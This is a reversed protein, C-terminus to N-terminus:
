LCTIFGEGVLISNDEGDTEIHVCGQPTIPTIAVVYRREQHIKNSKPQQYNALKLNTKIRVTYNNLIENHVLGTRCGLSEALAQVQIVDTKRPSTFQFRDSKQNYLRSKSHLIGSLLEQRQEVSGLLYNNPIKTPILPALQSLITPTISFEREGNGARGHEKIKYGADQFKEHIFEACGPTPVMVHNKRRNFFWFGFVFPPISLDQHPLEIPKTTPVSYMMRDRQDKLPSDLLEQATKIKLPRRFQHRGRYGDARYRYRRDELPLKLKADGSATLYDSFMVEYCNQARYQQAVKIQVINGNRDFVYDGPRLDYAFKWYDLTLVRQTALIAM